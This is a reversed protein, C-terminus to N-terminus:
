AALWELFYYIGRDEIQRFGLRQYLRLAPNFREVHIRLPPSQSQPGFVFHGIGSTVRADPSSDRAAYGITGHGAVCVRDKSPQSVFRASCGTGGSATTVGYRRFVADASVIALREELAQTALLRDFPDRHHFPLTAVRLVPALEVDLLTFANLTL